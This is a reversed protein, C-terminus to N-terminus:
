CLIVVFFYLLLFLKIELSLFSTNLMLKNIVAARSSLYIFVLSFTDAITHLHSKLKLEWVPKRVPQLNSRRVDTESKFIILKTNIGEM